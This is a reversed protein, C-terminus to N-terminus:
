EPRQKGQKATTAGPSLLRAARLAFGSAVNGRGATKLLELAALNEVRRIVPPRQQRIDLHLRNIEAGVPDRLSAQLGLRRVEVLIQRVQHLTRVHVHQGVRAVPYPLPGVSLM